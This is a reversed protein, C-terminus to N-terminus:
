VHGEAVRNLVVAPAEDTEDDAAAIAIALASNELILRHEKRALDTDRWPGEDIAFRASVMTEMAVEASDCLRDHLHEHIWRSTSQTGDGRRYQRGRRRVNDSEGIYVEARHRTAFVLRYVGPESRLGDPFHLEAHGDAAVARTVPGVRLWEFQVSLRTM